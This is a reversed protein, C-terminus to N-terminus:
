LSCRQQEVARIHVSRQTMAVFLFISGAVAVNLSEISPVMPISVSCDSAEKLKSTPGHSENGLAIATASKLDCKTIDVGGHADACLLKIQRTKLYDIAESHSCLIVPLHFISGASSRIVKPSFPNCTNPLMIMADVGFAAASRTLTGLNGPDSIGDCLVILPPGKFSLERLDVPKYTVLAVIGQPSVTDSLTKIVGETTEILLADSAMKFFQRNDEFFHRTFLLAKPRIQASCLATEILSLGEIFFDDGKGKKLALMKKILPNSPSQVKKIVM